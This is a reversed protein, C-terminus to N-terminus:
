TGRVIRQLGLTALFAAIAAVALAGEGARAIVLADLLSIGAILRVVARPVDSRRGGLLPRVTTVVWGVFAVLIAAALWSTLLAGLNAVVPVGMLALPWANEIRRLSEQKATYTLGILYALLVASGVIVDGDLRPQVSLAATVYVGVRCLGMLFPSLPNGKHWADYLVILAALVLGSAVCHGPMAGALAGLALVAVSAALLGFGWAFVTLASVQGSPIPREPRERADIQRDFADNLYMGGVYALSMSFAVLAIRAPSAGGALVVGAIVNSAVTPLNSVRGLKLAVALRM